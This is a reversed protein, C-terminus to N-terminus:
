RGGFSGAQNSPTIPPAPARVAITGADMNTRVAAVSNALFRQRGM